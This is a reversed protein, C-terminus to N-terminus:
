VAIQGRLKGIEEYVEWGESLPYKIMSDTKEDYVNWPNESVSTGRFGIAECDLNPIISAWSKLHNYAMEAPYTKDFQELDAAFRFFNKRSVYVHDMTSLHVSLEFDALDKRQCLDWLKQQEQANIWSHYPINPDKVYKDWLANWIRAAGCWSNRFEISDAMVGDKFIIIECYSM